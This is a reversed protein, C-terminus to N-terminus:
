NDCEEDAEQSYGELEVGVEYSWTDEYFSMTVTKITDYYKGHHLLVAEGEGLTELHSKTELGGLLLNKIDELSAGDDLLDYLFDRTESEWEKVSSVLRYNDGYDSEKINFPGDTWGMSQWLQWGDRKKLTVVRGNFREAFCEAEEFSDFGVYGRHLHSPYGNMGTTIEIAKM